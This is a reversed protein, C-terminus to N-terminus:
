GPPRRRPGGLRTRRSRARAAVEHDRLAQAPLAGPLRPLPHRSSDPRRQHCRRHAPRPDGSVERHRWGLRHARYAWDTEEAYLFFDEDFGGVQALAENRIMLVSGIVFGARAGLRGLGAATLVARGSTPFPWSVRGASGHEDVQAPAVSALTADALLAEHLRDVEERGIVADPNLLLVDAQPDLRHALAHNVGAGFGGNSGPDLYRVGLEDCVAAVEPSSSNDVVTVPLSRVPEVAAALLDPRGYAM